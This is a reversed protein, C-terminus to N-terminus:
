VRLHPQLTPGRISVELPFSISIKSPIGRFFVPIEPLSRPSPQPPDVPVDSRRSGADGFPVSGFTRGKSGTRPEPEVRELLPDPNSPRSRSGRFAGSQSSRSLQFMPRPAAASFPRHIACGVNRRDKRHTYAEQTHNPRLVLWSREM